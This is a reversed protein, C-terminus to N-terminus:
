SVVSFSRGCAFTYRFSSVALLRPRRILAWRSLFTLPSKPMFASWFQSALIFSRSDMCFRM